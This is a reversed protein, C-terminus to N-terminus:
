GLHVGAHALHHAIWGDIRDPDTRRVVGPQRNDLLDDVRDFAAARENPSPFGGWNGSEVVDRLAQQEREDHVPWAPFSERRLKAGGDIALPGTM